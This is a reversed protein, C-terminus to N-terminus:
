YLSAMNEIKRQIKERLSIPSIVKIQDQLMFIWGILGESISVDPITLLYKNQHLKKVEMDMGFHSVIERLIKQYCEIQLTDKVQTSYMNIMKDIEKSMDFQERMEIFSEQITMIQRMRDIRYISLENKYKQNYGILYYHNNHPVIQYPSIIYQKGDNGNQSPVEILHNHAVEYNIYQFSIVAKREIAKIITSINLIFSFTQQKDQPQYQVLRARQQYSSLHSLKHKLKVKDEYKLDEHFSINDVLFQLEGDLFFENEIKYGVSHISIIMEKEIWFYFFKNIQKICSYVTKIDIYINYNELRKLIEKASIASNENEQIIKLIYYMKEGM